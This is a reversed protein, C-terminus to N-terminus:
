HVSHMLRALHESHEVALRLVVQSSTRVVVLECHPRLYLNLEVGLNSYEAEWHVAEKRLEFCQAGM